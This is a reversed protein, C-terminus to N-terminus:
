CGIAYLTQFCVFDDINLGGSADCDAAPDGLAFLTQFCVFDDINLSGSGDCDAACDEAVILKAGGNGDIYDVKFTGPPIAAPKDPNLGINTRTGDPVSDGGSNLENIGISSFAGGMGFNASVADLVFLHFVDGPQGGEVQLTVIFIPKDLSTHLPGPASASELYHVALGDFMGAFDPIISGTGSPHAPAVPQGKMGVIKGVLGPERQHGLAIGRDIGGIFGISTITPPTPTDALIYVGIGEVLVSGPKITRTSQIGPTAVDLDLIVSVQGQAQLSTVVAVVLGSVLRINLGLM